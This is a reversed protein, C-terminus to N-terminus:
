DARFSRASSAFTNVFTNWYRQDVAYTVVWMKDGRLYVYTYQQVTVSGVRMRLTLRAADLGNIRARYGSALVQVGADKVATSISTMADDLTTSEPVQQSTVNMNAYNGGVPKTDMAWFKIIRKLDEASYMEAIRAAWESDMKEVAELVAEIGEQTVDVAQWREPLALHFDDAAHDTWGARIPYPTPTRSPTAAQTPTSSPAATVTASPALTATFTKSPVPTRTPPPTASATATAPLPSPTASAQPTATVEPAATFTAPAVRTPQAASPDSQRTVLKPLRAM